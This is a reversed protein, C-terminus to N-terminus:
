RVNIRPVGAPARHVVPPLRQVVGPAEQVIAPARQILIVLRKPESESGGELAVTERPKGYAYYFLMAMVPPALKGLRAQSRLKALVAPDEVISKALAQVERTVKNQV